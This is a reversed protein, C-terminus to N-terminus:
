VNASEIKMSIDPWKAQHVLSGSSIADVGSGIFRDINELTVNGSAEILVHPYNEDRFTTVRKIEEIDMNDCMVIDAGAEMASRAMDFDECEIEIKSTFPIKERAKKVFSKLDKVTKLHTDKLMLCDDLGLRHNIGGGCLVAYKEFERLLPRTKRTDLIKIGSDKLRNVYKKTNTAISSAHLITNLVARECKLLSVSKGKIKAIIDGKEFEDGDKKFWESELDLYKLIAQAYIVGALVGESKAVIKAEAYVPEAIKEFLDGRGIDEALVDRAFDEIFM